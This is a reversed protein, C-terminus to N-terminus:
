QRDRIFNTTRILKYSGGECLATYLYCAWLNNEHLVSLYGSSGLRHRHRLARSGIRGNDQVLITTRRTSPERRRCLPHSTRPPTIRRSRPAISTNGAFCPPASHIHILQHHPHEGPQEPLRLLMLQLNTSDGSKLAPEDVCAMTEWTSHGVPRKDIAWASNTFPGFAVTQERKYQKWHALRSVRPADDDSADTQGILAINWPELMEFM